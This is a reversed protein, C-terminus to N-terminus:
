NNGASLLVRLTKEAFQRINRHYDYNVPMPPANMKMKIKEALDNGNSKEFLLHPYGPLQEKHVEIDSAIIFQQLSKADEVVTGWGEFLSPQIISNAEKMLVLQDMRDIFGLFKVQKGIEWDKVKQQLMTFHGASRYDNTKGSFVFQYKLGEEKLKRIAELIVIHNKHVWFQNAIFFYGPQVGYKALVDAANLQRIDPNSVAFPLVHVRCTHQPYFKEFDNRAAESSLVLHDTHMAIFEQQRKRSGLEEESFFSPFYHEQFDPVWFIQKKVNTVVLRDSAPYLVDIPTTIKKKFVKKKLLRNVIGKLHTYPYITRIFSLYPYSTEKKTFELAHLEPSLIIIHPKQHDELINLARILNMIYYTGGIWNDTINLTLGLTKRSAAM